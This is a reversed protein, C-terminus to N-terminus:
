WEKPHPETRFYYGIIASERSHQKHCSFQLHRWSKSALMTIAIPLMDDPMMIFAEYGGKIRSLSGVEDFKRQSGQRKDERYGPGVYARVSVPLGMMKAPGDAKDVRCAIRLTKSESLPDPDNMLMGLGLSYDWSWGEIAMGLWFDHLDATARNFQLDAFDAM